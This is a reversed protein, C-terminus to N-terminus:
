RPTAGHLFLDMLTDTQARLGPQCGRQIWDLLAGNIVGGLAAALIETPYDKRIRDGAERLAANFQSLVWQRVAEDPGCPDRYLQIANGGVQMYITFLAGNEELFEFMTRVLDRIRTLPDEIKACLELEAALRERGAELISRFIDEKSSFYNYLTGTAVGAEVAIDAIKTASFGTRGFIRIAADMISQRYVARSEERVSRREKKRTHSNAM